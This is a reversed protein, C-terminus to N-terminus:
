GTLGKFKRRKAISAGKRSTPKFIESLRSKSQYLTRKFLKGLSGEFEENKELATNLSRVLLERELEPECEIRQTWESQENCLGKKYCDKRVAAPFKIVSLRPVFGFRYGGDFARRWLDVEPDEELERYDRWNGLREVIEKRHVIGSPPIWMGRFYNNSSPKAQITEDTLVLATLGYVLDYGDAIKETLSSLHHPFWLDDHGLYAVLEGRAQKLGENNAASQHGANTPLNIWRVRSDGIANVVAESDDTCGDGVVLVEFDAFEQRLVSGISFPLM